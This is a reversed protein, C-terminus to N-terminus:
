VENSYLEFLIIKETTTQVKKAAYIGNESVYLGFQSMKEDGVVLSNCFQGETAERGVV